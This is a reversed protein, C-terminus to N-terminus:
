RAYGRSIAQGAVPGDLFDGGGNRGPQARPDTACGTLLTTVVVAALGIVAAVTLGTM